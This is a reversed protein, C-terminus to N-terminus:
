KGDIDWGSINDDGLADADDNNDNDDTDIM